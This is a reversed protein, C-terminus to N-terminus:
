MHVHTGWGSQIDAGRQKEKALFVDFVGAAPRYRSLPVCVSSQSAFRGDVGVATVM